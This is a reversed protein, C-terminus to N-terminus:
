APMPSCSAGGRGRPPHERGSRCRHVRPRPEPWPARQRRGAPLHARRRAHLEQEVLNAITSKGSGSLGTFWLIAPKHGNRHVRAVKDVTLSQRHVNTARRLGFYIMGAGATANTFRDILIFGGTERNEPLSRPCRRPPRSTACRRDRELALTKAAMHELTNVDVKHKLTTVRAPVFRTGIRMLYSRGPLMADEAMWLVHAAFQDVVEPRARPRPSCM